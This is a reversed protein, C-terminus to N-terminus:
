GERMMKPVRLRARYHEPMTKGKIWHRGKNVMDIANDQATGVFLHKPNVCIRNDCKHCVFADQQVPEVFLEYALRHACVVDGM